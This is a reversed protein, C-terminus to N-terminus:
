KDSKNAGLLMDLLIKQGSVTLVEATQIGTKPSNDQLHRASGGFDVLERFIGGLATKRRHVTCMATQAM